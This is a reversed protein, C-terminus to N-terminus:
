VVSKRDVLPTINISDVAGDDDDDHSSNVSAM